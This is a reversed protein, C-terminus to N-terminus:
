SANRDRRFQELTMTNDPAYLRYSVRSPPSCRAVRCQFMHVDPARKEYSWDPGIAVPPMEAVSPVPAAGPDDPQRAQQAAAGCAFFGILAVAVVLAPLNSGIM